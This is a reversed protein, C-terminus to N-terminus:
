DAGRLYFYCAQQYMEALFGQMNESLFPGEGWGDTYHGILYYLRVDQNPELEIPSSRRSWTEVPIIEGATDDIINKITRNEIIGSDVDLINLGRLASSGADPDSIPDNLDAIWEDAPILILDIMELNASGSNQEAWIEFILNAALADANTIELFPILLTDGPILDILARDYTGASFVEGTEFAPAYTDNSNIKVRLKISIEEADGSTQSYRLFVRYEGTFDSLMATGTFRARMAQTTVLTFTCDARFGGPAQPDAVAVTDSGYTVVWDGPNGDNGCNLRSVFNDLGRSKAGVVIRSMSCMTNDEDGGDPSKLRKLVFPPVDGKLSAAPVRVEPTHQNYVVYTGNAPATTWIGGMTLTIRIWYRNGQGNVTDVVWDAGPLVHM